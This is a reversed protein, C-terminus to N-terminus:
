KIISIPCETIEIPIVFAFSSSDRGTSYLIYTTDLSCYSLSLFHLDDRVSIQYKYNSTWHLMLSNRTKVKCKITFLSLCAYMYVNCCYLIQVPDTNLTIRISFSNPNFKLQNNHNNNNIEFNCQIQFSLM